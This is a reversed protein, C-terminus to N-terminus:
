QLVSIRPEIRLNEPNTRDDLFGAARDRDQEQEVFDEVAGVRVIPASACLRDHARQDRGARDAERGRVVKRQGLNGARESRLGRVYMEVVPDDVALDHEVIPQTRPDHLM